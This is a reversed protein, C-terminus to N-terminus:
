NKRSKRSKRSKRRNKKSKRRHKRGRRKRSGGINQVGAANELEDKVNAVHGQNVPIKTAPNELDKAIHPSAAAKALENKSYKHAIGTQNDEFAVHTSSIQRFEGKGAVVKSAAVAPHPTDPLPAGARRSRKGRRSHKRKGNRSKGGVIM